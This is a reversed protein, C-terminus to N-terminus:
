RPDSQGNQLYWAIPVAELHYQTISMLETRQQDAVRAWRQFWQSAARGVRSQHQQLTFMVLVAVLSMPKCGTRRCARRNAALPVAPVSTPTALWAPSAIPSPSMAPSLWRYRDVLRLPSRAPPRSIILAGETPTLQSLKEQSTQQDPPQLHAIMPDGPFWSGSARPGAQQPSAHATHMGCTLCCMAVM